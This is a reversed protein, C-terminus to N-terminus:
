FTGRIGFRFYRPSQYGAPLGFNPNTDSLRIPRFSGNDKIRAGTLPGGQQGVVAGIIYQETVATQQQFNILNFCDITVGISKDKDVALRYGLNADVDYVWPTRPGSGRPLLLNTSGSGGYLADGGYYNTPTGSTARFSLGTSVRNHPDLLWDKAGFLKIEHTRDGPLPGYSNITFSKTDFSSNHNPLFVSTSGSASMFQGQINGRLYSATYSAQALWNDGFAKMLYLTVADYDRAAKPFTSAWGYGPNGLFSQATLDNSMDDLWRLFWRHQWSLGLRADKLVEYEGGAVIEDQTTPKTHPDPTEIGGGYYGYKQSPQYGAQSIATPLSTCNQLPKPTLTPNGQCPAPGSPSPVNYQPILNPLGVEADTALSLPVNEYYRAYNAFIKAHGMQTPDYIVGLRPSWQDPLSLALEGANNYLQQTDYRLGINLTVLDFVSWSDQLFGGAILSTSTNRLPDVLLPNDPGRLVGYGENVGIGTGDGSESLVTGGAHGSTQTVTTFEFSFGAKVVHHGAAQLLYTLVSGASWREFHHDFLLSNPGLPGGTSYSTVPCLSNLGPFMPTMGNMPMACQRNLVPNNEFETISHYSSAGPSYGRSWAVNPLNIIAGPNPDGYRSGDVPYNSEDQHHWGVTTDVLVRKNNFESSWKISADYSQASAQIATSGFTGYPYGNLQVGGQQPDVSFQNSGGTHNPSAIFTFAVKNDQDIAWTLKGLVQLSQLTALNRQAGNSGTLGDGTISEVTPCPPAGPTVVGGPVNCANFNLWKAVAAQNAATPAIRYFYRDVDYNETSADLGVYFWLKDKVIPGGVDAGVDGLYSLPTNVSVSGLGPPPVKATGALGGPAWYTFADGHYENSGSKTIAEITGGTVRGYEPMYGGSIVNVEKVFESSLPTGIIGNGPNGVNLGDVIYNNEPSTAGAISVGFNDSKAGPVVEAVSEISRSAGGKSTPAAVSIRTTFDKTISSVQQTSGVDITPAKAIVTVEEATVTTPLLEANARLTAGSSLAVGDRSVNKYGDKEFRLSYTGSPLDPIRFYGQADTVVVQEGQLDPSTATVVVDALPKRDQADAVTGTLVGAGAQARADTAFTLVTPVVASGLLVSAV